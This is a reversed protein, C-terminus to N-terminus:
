VATKRPRGAKPQKPTHIQGACIGPPRKRKPLGGYWDACRDLAPCRFCLGIAQSHRQDVTESAEGPAAEDFLHGKGRCRAGHLAPAGAIAALLMDFNTV